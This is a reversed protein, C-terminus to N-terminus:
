LRRCNLNNSPQYRQLFRGSPAPWATKQTFVNVRFRGIDKVELAFDIELDSVLIKRQDETLIQSLMQQVVEASVPTESVKKLEGHVRMMIPSGSCIHVDSAGDDFTKKLFPIIDM